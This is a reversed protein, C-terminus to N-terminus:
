RTRGSWVRDDAVEREWLPAGTADTSGEPHDM